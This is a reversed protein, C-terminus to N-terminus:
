DPPPALDQELIATFGRAPPDFPGARSSMRRRWYPQCHRRRAPRARDGLLSLDGGHSARVGWRASLTPCSGLPGPLRPPRRACMALCPSAPNERRISSTRKRLPCDRCCRAWTGSRWLPAGSRVTRTFAAGHPDGVAGARLADGASSPGAGSCSVSVSVGLPCPAGPSARGLFPYGSFPTRRSLGYIVRLPRGRHVGLAGRDFRHQPRRVSRTTPLRAPRGGPPAVFPADGTRRCSITSGRDPAVGCDSALGWRGRSLHAHSPVPGHWPVTNATM